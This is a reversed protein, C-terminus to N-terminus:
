FRDKRRRLEAFVEADPASEMGLARKMDREGARLFPNTARELAITSPVTLKGEEVLARVEALRTQVLPNDPEVTVAFEYNVLAYDHGCFVRTEAPLAALLQLSTWMIQPSRTFLRGCGGCFLTDGTFVDGVGGQSPPLYLCVSDASHGPTRLVTFVFPGATVHQDQGEIEAGPLLVVCGTQRSLDDKGGTHDFHDHTCLVAHLRAGSRGLARLVPSAEGADIVVADGESEIVYTYNDALTGLTTVTHM